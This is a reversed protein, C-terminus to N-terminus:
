PRSESPLIRSTSMRIAVAEACSGSNGRVTAPGGLSSEGSRPPCTLELRGRLAGGGPLRRHPPLPRTRTRTNSTTQSRYLPSVDNRAYPLARCLMAPCGACSCLATCFKLRPNPRGCCECSSPANGAPFPMLTSATGKTLVRQNNMNRWAETLPTSDGLTQPCMGNCLPRHPAYPAPPPAAPPPLPPSPPPPPPFAPPPPSLPPPKPAGAIQGQVPGCSNQRGDVCRGYVQIEYTGANDGRFGPTAQNSAWGRDALQDDNFLSWVTGAQLYGRWDDGWANSKGQSDSFSLIAHDYDGSTSVGCIFLYPLSLGAFPTPGAAQLGGEVHMGSYASTWQTTSPSSTFASTEGCGLITAMLSSGLTQVLDYVGYQNDTTRVIRIRSVEQVSRFAEFIGPEGSAPAASSFALGGM